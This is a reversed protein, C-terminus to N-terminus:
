SSNNYQLHNSNLIIDWKKCIIMKYQLTILTHM